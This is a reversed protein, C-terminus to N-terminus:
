LKPSLLGDDCGSTCCTKAEPAWLEVDLPGFMQEIFARTELYVGPNPTEFPQHYIFRGLLGRCFQEYDRSHLVFSHWMSDVPESTVKPGPKVAAAILFKKLETFRREAEALSVGHDEAFRKVVRPNEYALIDGIPRLTERPATTQM